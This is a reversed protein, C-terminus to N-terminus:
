LQQWGQGQGSLLGSLLGSASPSFHDPHIVQALIELSEVLRPGPRNFYQNGDTVYVRQTRVASLNSWGSQAILPAMEARTREISFGCPLLVIIEPDAARLDEWELWESHEGVKGFLPQGGALVVLEPIWNGAGMLPDIWEICAVRPRSRIRLAREAIDTVRETLEHTVRKGVEDAGLSAAVREIDMWVDALTKPNLSVVKPATGIWDALASEIDRLSAACVECQDQTLIATPELSRLQEADVRYVSSGDQVLQKVRDDINKGSASSDLQPQTLVPLLEVGVPFDCEHSRAVLSDAFGLACAIETASPILSVIRETRRASQADNM